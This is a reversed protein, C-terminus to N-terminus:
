NVGYIWMPPLNRLVFRQKQVSLARYHKRVLLPSYTFFRFIAGRDTQSKINNLVQQLAAEGMTVPLSSVILDVRSIGQEGVVAPMALADDALIVSEGYQQKLHHRYDPDIEFLMIRTSPRAHQMYERTFTGPGPGLEVISNIQAFDLGVFMNRAARRSSPIIAGVSGPSKFFKRAFYFTGHPRPERSM